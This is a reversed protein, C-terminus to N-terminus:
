PKRRFPHHYDELHWDLIPEANYPVLADDEVAVVPEAVAIAEKAYDSNARVSASFLSWLQQDAKRGVM